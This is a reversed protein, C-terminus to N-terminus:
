MRMLWKMLHNYHILRAENPLDFTNASGNEWLSKISRIVGCGPFCCWLFLCPSTRFNGMVNREQMLNEACIRRAPLLLVASLLVFNHSSAKQSQIEKQISFYILRRQWFVLFIGTYFSLHNLSFLYFSWHAEKIESLCNLCTSGNLHMSKRQLFPPTEQQLISLIVAYHDTPLIGKM